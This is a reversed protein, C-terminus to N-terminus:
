AHQRIKQAETEEDTIFLSIPTHGAEREPIRPSEVSISSTFASQLSYFHQM